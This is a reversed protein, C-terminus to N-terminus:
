ELDSSDEDSELNDIYEDIKDPNNEFDKLKIIKKHIKFIDDSMDMSQLRESDKHLIALEIMNKFKDSSYIYKLRELIRIQSTSTFKNKVFLKFPKFWSKFKNLEKEIESNIISEIDVDKESKITSELNDLNNNLNELKNAYKLFVESEVIPHKKSIMFPLFNEDATIEIMFKGTIKADVYDKPTKLKEITKKDLEIYVCTSFLTGMVLNSNYSLTMYLIPYKTNKLLYWGPINCRYSRGIVDYGMFKELKLNGTKSNIKIHEDKFEENKEVSTYFKCICTNTDVIDLRFLPFYEKEINENNENFTKSEEVM